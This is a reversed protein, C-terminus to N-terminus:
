SKISVKLENVEVTEIFSLIEANEFVFASPLLTSRATFYNLTLVPEDNSCVKFSRLGQRHINLKFTM